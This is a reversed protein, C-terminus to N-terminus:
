EGTPFLLTKDPKLSIDVESVHDPVTGPPCRLHLFTDSLSHVVELQQM